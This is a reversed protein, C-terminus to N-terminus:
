NSENTYKEIDHKIGFYLNSTLIKCITILDKVCNICLLFNITDKPKNIM